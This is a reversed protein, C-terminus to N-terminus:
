EYRLVDVPNTLATRVAQYSVTCLAVFLAFAGALVFMLLNIDTRYAFSELWRNMFYYAVPWALVNAVIVLKLFDKSLLSTIGLVSAGLVKRIGIEKTRQETSLSTLSFLGLLAILIALGSFYLFVRQFRQESKYLRDFSEDLFWYNFPVSPVVHQWTREISNLTGSVNGASIKVALKNFLNRWPQNTIILPQIKSHLTAFHFDKVMGVVRHDGNRRITKGIPDQWNLQRALSENILYASKDSAFEKSFNRGMVVDVDFTELFDEDVDVVYITIPNKFGEPIYGNRTFGNRPVQSCATVSLINPRELLQTKLTKSKAKVDDGVLPLVVINDKDFGLEKQKVYNLQRNILITCVILAISIAFQFVVLIDRSKGKDSGSRFIGKLTRVAQFSSLSLAPYSGAVVGVVVLIVGLGVITRVNIVQSIRLDKNLLNQYVPLFTEVLFLAVALAMLTLLISEGLFQRILAQKNAGLVKRVGVEKARKTARATTLNVFNVCAIFLILLAIAAFIYINTRLNDSYDNYRLHIDRLPQLYPEVSLGFNAYQENIYEWMFDPFKRQLEEPAATPLLKVYTYYQNGGNWGMFRNPDKYLTSFSIFANYQLHSNAPPKEVIGTIQYSDKNDVVITKGLADESGFIREASEETLVMSYPAALAHRPSGAILEFSFISFLTPDAHRIEDIKLSRDKHSVYAVRPTSFRVFNEVEPFDRKMAPGIPPTFIPSEFELKGEKKHIVSVRYISEADEHFNDYSLQFQIYLLILITAGIGVALGFINTIAYAKYKM